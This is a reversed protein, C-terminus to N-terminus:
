LIGNSLINRLDYFQMTINGTNNRCLEESKRELVIFVNNTGKKRSSSLEVATRKAKEFM